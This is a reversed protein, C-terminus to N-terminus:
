KKKSYKKKDSIMSLDLNGIVKPSAIIYERKFASIPEVPEIEEITEIFGSEEEIIKYEKYEEEKETNSIKKVDIAVLGDHRFGIFFTVESTEDKGEIFNGVIPVFFAELGSKLVIKGQQRSSIISITGEARFLSSDEGFIRKKHNILCDIGDEVGLWEFAYKNNRSLERCKNIYKVAEDKYITSFISGEKITHSAYLVYLYYAAELNLVKSSDSNDYWIKLRSIIEETSVNIKSYRVLKLWLRLTLINSPDQLINDNLANAINNREDGRLKSWAEDILRANGKVKNMLISHIYMLRIQPRYARDVNDILNKFMEISTSYNGLLEFSRGESQSIYNKAKEIKNTKGLTEQQEILVQAEDILRKVTQYQELYWYYDSNTIFNEKKEIGSLEKGFDITLILTQIQAVYAHINYPNIARSLNFYNSAADCLEILFSESFEIKQGRVYNRKLFEIHRRNCMGGLHQLNYDNLGDICDLARQIYSEAEEFEEQEEAKEYLFRALHGLFHSESPYAEVLAVLVSKQKQKDGIDRILFSFQENDVNSHWQEETGLLDENNREFFVSKLIARTEDVLHENNEKVIKILELSYLDIQDKWNIAKGNGLITSLIMEAFKSFRPRWYETYTFKEQDYEQILVKRIHQAAFKTKRLDESLDKAFLSRFILESVSKQSYYYILCAFVTFRLQEEKIKEIYTSIYEFLKNSSYNKENIALAFDIVEVESPQRKSLQEILIKDETYINVKAVFKNRENIDDLTDNLYTSLEGSKNINLTRRIYLFCVILKNSNCTRILDEVETVGINSAEVVALVPRNVEDLFQSLAKYTKAKDFQTIIITPFQNRLDFAVRHALTTGGAGPKHLLDFKLSKKTSQLHSKVKTSLEDYKNRKVEIDTSLDKWTIQEGEYFAPIKDYGDFSTNLEINQYVVNIHSDLLKSYIHSIDIITQEEIKTRAPVLIKDTEQQQKDLVTSLGSIFEQLSLNYSNFQIDFKDFESIRDIKDSNQSIFVHTVLDTPIEEIESIIRTVEEVYDIDDWLYIVVYRRMSKSFFDKFLEKIFIHYRASRWQKINTTITDAMTKLGNAFLWNISGYTGSGIIGKQGKQKITLPVFSSGTTKEFSNHLGDEKSEFNFDIVFSWNVRSLIQLQNKTCGDFSPPAVLIYTSHKSFGEVYEYMEDWDSSIISSLYAKNINGSFAEQLQSPMTINFKKYLMNALELSQTKCLNSAEEFDIPSNPNHAAPNTKQQLDKLRAQENITLLRKNRIIDLLDKYELRKSPSISTLSINLEGNVIALGNIDGFTNFIFIKMIAEASKRFDALAHEHDNEFYFNLATICHKIYEETKSRILPTITM